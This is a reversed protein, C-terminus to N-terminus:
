VAMKKFAKLIAQEDINQKKLAAQTFLKKMKDTIDGISLGRTLYVLESILGATLVGAFIPKTDRMKEFLSKRADDDPNDVHIITGMRRPNGIIEQNVKDIHNTAGVLIIGNESATNMLEKYTNVEEIDHKERTFRPFFKEAEDFFLMVPKKLIKSQLKLKEFIEAVHRSISHIYSSDSMKSYDMKFLPVDMERALTEIITTKGTGPPGELIVGGPLDIKNEKFMKIVEPKWVNVVNDELEKKVEDMGGLENLTHFANASYTHPSLGAKGCFEGM